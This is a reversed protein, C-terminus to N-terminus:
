RRKKEEMLGFSAGIFDLLVMLPAAWLLDLFENALVRREIRRRLKPVFRDDPTLALGHLEAIPEGVDDDNDPM